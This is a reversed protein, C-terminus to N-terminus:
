EGVVKIYRKSSYGELVRDQYVIRIRVWVPNEPDGTEIEELITVPSGLAQKVFSQPDNPDLLVRDYQTGPGERLNLWTDAYVKVFGLQGEETVDNESSTPREGYDIDSQEMWEKGTLAYSDHIITLEGELYVNFSSFFSSVSTADSQSAYYDVNKSDAIIRQNDADYRYLSYYYSYSPNAGTSVYQSYTLIHTKGEHSVLYYSYSGMYDKEILNITGDSLSIVDLYLGDYGQFFCLIEDGPLDSVDAIKYVVDYYGQAAFNSDIASLVGHREEGSLDSFDIATSPVYVSYGGLTLCYTNYDVYEADDYVNEPIACATVTTTEGKTSIVLIATHGSEIDAINVEIQELVSYGVMDSSDASIANQAWPNFIEPISIITEESGDGDIDKQASSYYSYTSSLSDQLSQVVQDRYCADFTYSSYERPDIGYEFGLAEIEEATMEVESNRESYWTVEDARSEDYYDMTYETYASNFRAGDWVNYFSEGFWGIETDFNDYEPGGLTDTCYCLGNSDVVFGGGQTWQYYLTETNTKDFILFRMDGYFLELSGDGDADGIYAPEVFGGAVLVDSDVAALLGMYEIREITQQLEQAEMEKQEVEAAEKAGCGTLMIISLALLLCIIKKIKM